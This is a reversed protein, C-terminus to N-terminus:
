DSSYSFSLVLLCMKHWKLVFSTDLVRIIYLFIRFLMSNWIKKFLMKENENEKEIRKLNWSKLRKIRTRELAVWELHSAALTCWNSLIKKKRIATTAMSMIRNRLRCEVLFVCVYWCFSFAQNLPLTQRTFYYNIVFLSKRFFIASCSLSLVKM